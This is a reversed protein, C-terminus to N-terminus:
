LRCLCKLINLSVYRFTTVYLDIGLGISKFLM